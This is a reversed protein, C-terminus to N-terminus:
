QLERATPEVPGATAVRARKGTVEVRPLQATATAAAQNAASRRDHDFMASGVAVTGGALVCFTLLAGFIHDIM